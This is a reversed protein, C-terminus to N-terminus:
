VFVDWRSKEGERGRSAVIRDLSQLYHLRRSVGVCVSVIVFLGPLLYISGDVLIFSSLQRNM